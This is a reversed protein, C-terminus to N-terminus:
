KANKGQLKFQSIVHIKIKDSLSLSGALLNCKKHALVKNAIHNPGGHTVSLLHEESEDEESVEHLCFFCLDGDRKRLTAISPKSSKKSRSVPAARWSGNTKFATWANFADGLFTVIGNKKTYVISTTKGSKFRVLEWENTPELVEAGRENLFARFNILQAKVNNAKWVTM